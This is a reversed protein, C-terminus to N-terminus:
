GIVRALAVDSAAGSPADIGFTTGLVERLEAVSGLRREESTGDARHERLVGNSLGLRGRGAGARAAILRGMMPSDAHSVVYHNLVEIDVPRQEQLDFRYLRKWQGRVRAEVVFESGERLVRFTEHPTTQEVDTQLLLPGTPTLGGFGVDALYLTAGIEVLLVMHSRARLEDAPREWLVRAALATARLGVAELVSKFLVNHEFCYGGRRRQVLKRELSELDIQVPVGLLTDLNEFPIARPHHAHLARLTELTPSLPGSYGIRALYSDLDLM